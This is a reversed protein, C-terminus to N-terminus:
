PTNQDVEHDPYNLASKLYPLFSACSSPIFYQEELKIELMNVWVHFSTYLVFIAYIFYPNPSCKTKIGLVFSAHLGPCSCLPTEKQLM